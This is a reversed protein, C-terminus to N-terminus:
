RNGGNPSLVDPVATEHAFKLAALLTAMAARPSQSAVAQAAPHTLLLGLRSTVRPSIGFHIGRGGGLSIPEPKGPEVGALDIKLKMLPSMQENLAGIQQGNVPLNAVARRMTNGGSENFNQMAANSPAAVNPEKGGRYFESDFAEKLGNAESPLLWEPYKEKFTAIAKALTKSAKNSGPVNNASGLSPALDRIVQDRSVIGVGPSGPVAPTGGQPIALLAGEGSPTAAHAAARVAMAEELTPTFKRLDNLTQGNLGHRMFAAAVDQPDPKPARVLAMLENQDMGHAKAANSIAVRANSERKFISALYGTDHPAVTGQYPSGMATSVPPSGAPTPPIATARAMNDSSELLRSRAEGLPKLAANVRKTGTTGSIIPDGVAVRNAVAADVAEHSGAKLAGALIGRGLWRGAGALLEGSPQGLSEAGARLASKKWDPAHGQVLDTGVDTAGGVAGAAAARALIAPITIEPNMAAVTAGAAFSPVLTLSAKGVGRWYKGEDFRPDVHPTAAYKALAEQIDADSTGDPFSHTQGNFSVIKAM